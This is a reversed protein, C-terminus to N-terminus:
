ANFQHSFVIYQVPLLPQHLGTPRVVRQESYGFTVNKFDISLGQVRTRGKNSRSDDLHAGDGNGNNSSHEPPNQYINTLQRTGDEVSPKVKLV